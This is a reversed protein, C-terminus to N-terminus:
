RGVRCRTILVMRLDHERTSRAWLADDTDMLVSADAGLHQTIRQRAGKKTAHASVQLALGDEDIIEAVWVDKRM